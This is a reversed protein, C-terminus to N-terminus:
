RGSRLLRTANHATLSRWSDNPPQAAHDISALQADVGHDPTWCYDSGYLLHETGFAAVAAPVQRPFPTGAIDFCVRRLQRHVATDPDDDGIFVTRFLEMRDALLPLAGGGHTFVWEIDPYRAPTGTFVLDSVARTTDFIFELMPGPRGLTTVEACPPSTPHKSCWLAAGICNAISHYTVTTV